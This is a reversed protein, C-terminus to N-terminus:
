EIGYVLLTKEIMKDVSYQEVDQPVVQNNRLERVKTNLDSQESEFDFLFEEAKVNTLIKRFADNNNAIIPRGTLLCEALAMGFGEHLSPMLIIDSDTLKRRIEEESLRGWFIVKKGLGSDDVYSRLKDMYHQDSCNGIVDFIFDSKYGSLKKLCELIGKNNAIRGFYIFKNQFEKKPPLNSYKYIDVGNEIVCTNKLGFSKAIDQDQYSVNIIGDYLPAYKVIIHKFYFEKIKTFSKTHFFWGHSTVILRYNYTKKMNAIYKYLFKPANVHILDANQIERNIIELNRRKNTLFPFGGLYKVPLKIVKAGEIYEITLKNVAITGAIICVQHGEKQLQKAIDRIYVQIGGIEPLYGITTFVIKMM